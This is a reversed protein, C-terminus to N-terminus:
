RGWGLTGAIAEDSAMRADGRFVVRAVAGGASLHYTGDVDVEHRVHVELLGRPVGAPVELRLLGAGDDPTGSTEAALLVLDTGGDVLRVQWRGSGRQRVAVKLELLSPREGDIAKVRAGDQVARVPGVVMSQADLPWSVSRAVPVPEDPPVDLDSGFGEDIPDDDIPDDDEDDDLEDVEHVPEQQTAAATLWPALEVVQVDIPEALLSEVLRLHPVCIVTALGDAARAGIRELLREEYETARGALVGDLVVIATDSTAAVAPAIRQYEDRALTSIWREPALGTITAVEGILTAAVNTPLGRLRAERIIARDLRMDVLLRARRRLVGVVRASSRTKGRAPRRVGTAVAAVAQTARPPGVVVTVGAGAALDLGEILMTAEVQPGRRFWRPMVIPGPVDAACAVGVLRLSPESV